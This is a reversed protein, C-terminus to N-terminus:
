FLFTEGTSSKSMLFIILRYKCCKIRLGNIGQKREEGREHLIKKECHTEEDGDTKRLQSPARGFVHQWKNIHVIYASLFFTFRSCFIHTRPLPSLKISRVAAKQHSDDVELLYARRSWISYENCGTTNSYEISIKFAYVLNKIHFKVIGNMANLLSLNCVEAWGFINM